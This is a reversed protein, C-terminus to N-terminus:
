SYGGPQGTVQGVLETLTTTTVRDVAVAGVRHDADLVVSFPLVANPVLRALSTAARGSADFLSDYPVRYQSVFAEANPETDSNNIGLFRVGRTSLQRYATVLGPQEDHCPGCWSAWVNVVVPSGRFSSLDFPAGSLLRGSIGPAPRRSGAPYLVPRGGSPAADDGLGRFVTTGVAGLVGLGLAGGIAAGLVARRSTM